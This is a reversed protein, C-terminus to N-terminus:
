GFGHRPSDAPLEIFPWSSFLQAHELRDQGQEFSAWINDVTGVAVGAAIFLRVPSYKHFSMTLYNFDFSLNKKDDLFAFIDVFRVQITFSSLTRLFTSSPEVAEKTSCHSFM